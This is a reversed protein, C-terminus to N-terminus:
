PHGAFAPAVRRVRYLIGGGNIPLGDTEVVLDRPDVQGNGNRHTEFVRAGRAAIRNRTVAELRHGGDSGTSAIAIGPRTDALVGADTGGASGHHTIKLLDSRFFQTGFGDRLDREYRKYSDGTFLLRAGHFRLQMFLSIYFRRGTSGAFLHALIGPAIPEDLLEDELIVEDGWWAVAQRFPVLWVRDTAAWGRGNSRYLTMPNNLSPSNNALIAEFARAHDSHAHSPMIAELFLGRNEIYAVLDDALRQNSAAGTGNGADVAWARGGPFVILICEGHDVSFMRVELHNAAFANQRAASPQVQQAGDAVVRLYM